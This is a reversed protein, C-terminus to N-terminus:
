LRRGYKQSVRENGYNALFFVGAAKLINMKGDLLLLFNSSALIGAKQENFSQMFAIKIKKQLRIYQTVM